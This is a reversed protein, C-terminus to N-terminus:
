MDSPPLIGAVVMLIFGAGFGFTLMALRVYGSLGFRATVVAILLTVLMLLIGAKKFKRPEMM